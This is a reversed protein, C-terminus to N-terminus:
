LMDEYVKKIKKKKSKKKKIEEISVEEISVKILNKVDDNMTDNDLYKIQNGDNWRILDDLNHLNWVYYCFPFNYKIWLQGDKIKCIKKIAEIRKQIEDKNM